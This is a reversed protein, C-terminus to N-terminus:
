GGIMFSNVVLSSLDISIICSIYTLLKSLIKKGKSKTSITAKIRGAEAGKNPMNQKPLKILSDPTTSLNLLVTCFEKIFMTVMKKPNAIPDFNFASPNKSSSVNPM